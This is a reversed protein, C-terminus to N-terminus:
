MQEVLPVQEMQTSQPDEKAIPEIFEGQLENLLNDLEESSLPDTSYQHEDIPAVNPDTGTGSSMLLMKEKNMGGESLAKMVVSVLQTASYKQEAHTQAYLPLGDSLITHLLKNDVQLFSRAGSSENNGQINVKLGAAIGIVIMVGATVLVLLIFRKIQKWIDNWDHLVEENNHPITLRREMNSKSGEREVVELLRNVFYTQFYYLLVFYVEDKKNIYYTKHFLFLLNEKM